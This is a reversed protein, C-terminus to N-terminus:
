GLQPVDSEVLILNPAKQYSVMSMKMNAAPMEMSGRVVLTKIRAFAAAGGMANTASELLAKADAQGAPTAAPKLAVTAPVEPLVKPENQGALVTTAFLGALLATGLLRHRITKM